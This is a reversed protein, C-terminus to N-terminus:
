IYTHLKYTHANYNQNLQFIFQVQIDWDIQNDEQSNRIQELMLETYGGQM